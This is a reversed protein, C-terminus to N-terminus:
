AHKGALMMGSLIDEEKVVMMAEENTTGQIRLFNGALVQNWHLRQKKKLVTFRDNHSKLEDAPTNYITFKSWYEILTELEAAKEQSKLDLFPYFVLKANALSITQSLFM